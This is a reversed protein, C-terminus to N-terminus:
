RKLEGISDRISDNVSNYVSDNVSDRVPYWVSSYVSDKLPTIKQKSM